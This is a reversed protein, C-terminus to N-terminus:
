FIITQGNNQLSILEFDQGYTLTFEKDILYYGNDQVAWMEGNQDILTMWGTEPNYSDCYATVSHFDFDRASEIESMIQGHSCLSMLLIVTCLFLTPLLTYKFKQM